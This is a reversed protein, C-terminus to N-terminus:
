ILFISRLRRNLNQEFELVLEFEISCGAALFIRNAASFIRDATAKRHPKSRHLEKECQQIKTIKTLVLYQFTQNEGRLRCPCYARLLLFAHPKLSLSANDRTNSIFKNMKSRNLVFYTSPYQNQSQKKEPSFINM